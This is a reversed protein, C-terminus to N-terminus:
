EGCGLGCDQTADFMYALELFTSMMGWVGCGVAYEQTADFMYYAFELFTSMM